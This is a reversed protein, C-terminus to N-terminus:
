FPIFNLNSDKCSFYFDGHKHGNYDQWKSTLNATVGKTKHATSKFDYDTAVFDLEINTGKVKLCVDFTPMKKVRKTLSVLDYGHKNAFASFEKETYDDIFM